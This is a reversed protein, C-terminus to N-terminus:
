KSKKESKERRIYYELSTSNIATKNLSSDKSTGGFFYLGSKQFSTEFKYLSDLEVKQTVTSCSVTVTQAVSIKASIMILIAFLKKM